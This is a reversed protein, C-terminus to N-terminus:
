EAAAARRRDGQVVIREGNAAGLAEALNETITYGLFHLPAAPDRKVQKWTRELETEMAALVPSKPASPPAAGLCLLPVLLSVLAAWSRHTHRM